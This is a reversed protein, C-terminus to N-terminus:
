AVEVDNDEMIDEGSAARNDNWFSDFKMGREHVGPAAVIADHITELLEVLIRADAGSNDSTLLAGRRVSRLNAELTLCSSLSLPLNFRSLSFPIAGHEITHAQM